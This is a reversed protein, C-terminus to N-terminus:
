NFPCIEEPCVDWFVGEFFYLVSRLLVGLVLSHKVIVSSVSLTGGSGLLVLVVARLVMPV